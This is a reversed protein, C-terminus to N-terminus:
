FLIRQLFPINYEGSKEDLLHTGAMHAEGKKLAILGGMSGVHASSLSYKPYNKKLSNALLDLANDHSGICVVTNRIEGRDRLLEVSVEAGAGIGEAMAPIRVFGDARVLSMLVGAGRSVPTAIISEGVKGLKVRLFEEQGLPSAVQRSITARMYEPDPLDIGQLIYIL